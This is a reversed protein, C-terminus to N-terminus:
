DEFLDPYTAKLYEYVSTDHYTFTYQKLYYTYANTIYTSKTGLIKAIQRAVAETKFPDDDTVLYSKDSTPNLKSTSPAELLEVIYFSSVDDNNLIYKYEYDSTLRLYRHDGIRDMYRDKEALKALDEASKEFDNSIKINFIRDTITSPLDSLKGDKDAKVFWGNEAYDELALSTIKELLGQKLTRKNNDTFSSYASDDEDDSWRTQESVHAKEYESLIAGLKTKEYYWFGKGQANGDYTYDYEEFGYDSLDIAYVKGDEKVCKGELKKAKGYIEDLDENAQLAKIKVTNSDKEIGGFGKVWSVLDSYDIADGDTKGEIHTKAFLKFLKEINTSDLTDCDIKVYNIERGYARGLSAYSNKNTFIYDEVLKDKYVGPVVEKVLYDEYRTVFDTLYERVNEKKFSDDIFAKVWKAPDIVTGDANFGKIDYLKQVLSRAYKEELFETKNITDRYSDSSIENFITEDIRENLDKYFYEFRKIRIQDATWGTKLTGDNDREFAGAHAHIYALAETANKVKGNDDFCKILETYKGYEAEALKELLTSAVKENKSGSIADYIKGIKNEEDDFATSSGKNVIQTEYEKPEVVVDDCASLVFAGSLAFVGALLLKNINKAMTVHVELRTGLLM